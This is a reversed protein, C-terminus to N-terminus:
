SLCRGWLLRSQRTQVYPWLLLLGGEWIELLTKLNYRYFTNLRWFFFFFDLKLKEIRLKM